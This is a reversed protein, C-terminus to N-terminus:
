EGRNKLDVRYGACRTELDSSIEEFGELLKETTMANDGELEDILDKIQQFREDM